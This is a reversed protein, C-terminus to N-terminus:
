YLMGQLRRRYDDAQPSRPGIVDFVKLMLERVATRGLQRDDDAAALLADMAGPYEGRAALVRALALHGEATTPSGLAALDADAHPVDRLGLVTNM